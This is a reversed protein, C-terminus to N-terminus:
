RFPPLSPKRHCHMPTAIQAPRTVIMKEPHAGLPMITITVTCHVRVVRGGDRVGKGFPGAIGDHDGGSSRRKPAL